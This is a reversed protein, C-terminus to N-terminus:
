SDQRKDQRTSLLGKMDAAVRLQGARKMADSRAAGHPLKRAADLADQARADWDHNEAGSFTRRRKVM